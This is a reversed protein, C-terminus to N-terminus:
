ASFLKTLISFELCLQQNHWRQKVTVYIYDSLNTSIWQIWGMYIKSVAGSLCKFFPHHPRLSEFSSSAMRQHLSVTIQQQRVNVMHPVSLLHACRHKGIFKLIYLLSIRNFLFVKLRIKKRYNQQLNKKKWEKTLVSRNLRKVVGWVEVVSWLQNNTSHVSNLRDLIYQSM